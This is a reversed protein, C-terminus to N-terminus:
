YNFHEATAADRAQWESMKQAKADCVFEELSGSFGTLQACLFAEKTECNSYKKMTLKTFNM